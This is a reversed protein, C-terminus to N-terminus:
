ACAFSSASGPIHEATDITMATGDYWGRGGFQGDDFKDQFLITGGGPIDDGSSAGGVGSGSSGGGGAGGTGGPTGTTSSSMGSGQERDGGGCRASAIASLLIIAATGLKRM